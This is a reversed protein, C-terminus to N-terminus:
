CWDRPLPGRVKYAHLIVSSLVLLCTLMRAGMGEWSKGIAIIGGVTERELRQPM